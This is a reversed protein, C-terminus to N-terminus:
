FVSNALVQAYIYTAFSRWNAASRERTSLTCALRCSVDAVMGGVVIITGQANRVYKKVVKMLSFTHEVVCHKSRKEMFYKFIIGGIFVYM